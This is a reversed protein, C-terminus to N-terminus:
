SVAATAIAVRGATRRSVAGVEGTAQCRGRGPRPSTASAAPAASARSRSSPRSSAAAPWSPRWADRQADSIAPDTISPMPYAVPVGVKFVAKFERMVDHHAHRIRPATGNNVSANLVLSRTGLNLRNSLASLTLNNRTLM